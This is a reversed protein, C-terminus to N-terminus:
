AGDGGLAHVFADELDDKGSNGRIEDPSGAAVVRGGNIIVIHDCLAAVEQMVHSSFLVCRGADRLQRILNRLKRTAIVDLGSSPEDLLINQPEHILARALAVRTIQGHSFGKARRGAFDAIDLRQLLSDVCADLEDGRLGHLAGYYRINERASLNPYLGAAHPLVGMKQRAALPEDVVDHGDILAQGNDPKLVTYLMRLTTSKGAGNPGLLGTIRGDAASFSVDRVARVEGFSKQLKRVEIM